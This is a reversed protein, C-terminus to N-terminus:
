FVAFNTITRVEGLVASVVFRLTPRSIRTRVFREKFLLCLKPLIAKHHQRGVLNFAIKSGSMYIPNQSAIFYSWYLLIIFKKNLSQLKVILFQLCLINHLNHNIFIWKTRAALHGQRLNHGKQSLSHRNLILHREFQFHLRWIHKKRLFLTRGRKIDLTPKFM